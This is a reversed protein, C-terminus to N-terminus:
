IYHIKWSNSLNTRSPFSSCARSNASVVNGYPPGSKRRLSRTSLTSSLLVTAWRMRRTLSIRKNSCKQTIQASDPEIEKVVLSLSAAAFKTSFYRSDQVIWTQKYAKEDANRKESKRMEEDLSRKLMHLCRRVSLSLLEISSRIEEKASLILTKWVAKATSPMDRAWLSPLKQKEYGEERERIRTPVWHFSQCDRAWVQLTLGATTTRDRISKCCHDRARWTDAVSKLRFIKGWLRKVSWSASNYPM